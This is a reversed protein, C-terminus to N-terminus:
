QAISAGTQERWNQLAERSTLLPRNPRGQSQNQAALWAAWRATDAPSPPPEAPLLWLATHPAHASAEQLFRACARDPSANAHCALILAAPPHAALRALANQRQASSGDTQLTQWEPPLAPPPWPTEPPLEYGLLMVPATAAPSPAAAPAPAAPAPREPDIIETATLAALRAYIHRTHPHTEDIWDQPRPRALARRCRWLCLAALAARPLLGYVFVCGILWWAWASQGAPHPAAAEPALSLAIAAADPVAFGLQAPLWGLTHALAAFFGPPLITTQWSIQYAHFAFGFLLGALALALALAWIGHSIASLAWPWLRQQQLLRAGAHALLRIHRTPRTQSTQASPAPHDPGHLAALRAALWAGLRLALQGLLPAHATARRPAILLLAWVALALLHPGLLAALAAAANLQPGHGLTARALGLGMLAVGLALAAAALGIGARLPALAATLGLRQGLLWARRLYQAPRSGPRERLAQRLAQADELPGASELEQVAQAILAQAWLPPLNSPPM